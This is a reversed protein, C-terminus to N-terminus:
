LNNESEKANENVLNKHENNDTPSTSFLSVLIKKEFKFNKNLTMFIRILILMSFTFLYISFYIYYKKYMFQEMLKMNFGEDILSFMITVIPLRKSIWIIYINSIFYSFLLFSGIIYGLKFSLLIFAFIFIVYIILIEFINLLKFYSFILEIIIKALSFGSVAFLIFHNLNPIKKNIINVTSVTIFISVVLPIVYIFESGNFIFIVIFSIINLAFMNGVSYTLDENLSILMLSFFVYFLCIIIKYEVFFNDIPLKMYECAEKMFIDISIRCRGTSVSFTPENKKM